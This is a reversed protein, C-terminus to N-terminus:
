NSQVANIPDVVKGFGARNNAVFHVPALAKAEVGFHEHELVREVRQIQAFNMRIHLPEVFSAGVAQELAAVLFAASTAAM